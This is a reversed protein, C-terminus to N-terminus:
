RGAAVFDRAECVYAACADEDAPSLRAWEKMPRGKGADFARGEGNAILQSVREAPLKVVLENDKSFACFKGNATKLGVSSFMRGPELGGGEGALRRAVEDFIAGVTM